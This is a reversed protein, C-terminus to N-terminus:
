RRASALTRTTLLLGVATLSLYFVLDRTDLVGRAINAFHYDVSLFQLAEGLSEPLLIALKDVFFFAFCLLLGIIFGVIQNRSLASAWLGISLFSSAMLILGLYGAFVAGWDFTSGKAALWAVSIAYPVTCFLGVAVMGLAAIFKGAVVQWDELPMTLLLELTGGKREEALLRMTLAPAFIVFLIPSLQFFGRLSAQGALFLTGFFLWGAVLLFTGLVIYAIPSNFFTKMERRAIAISTSM